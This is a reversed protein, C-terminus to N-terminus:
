LQALCGCGMQLTSITKLQLKEHHLGLHNLPSSKDAMSFNLKGDQDARFGSPITASNIESMYPILAKSSPVDM